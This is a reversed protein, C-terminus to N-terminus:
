AFLVQHPVASLSPLHDAYLDATIAYHGHGLANQLLKVPVGEMVAATAFSHRLGHLTVQPLSEEQLIRRHAAYVRQQTTDCLWGSVSRPWARLLEAVQDPLQLRRLSHRTKLPVRSSGRRQGRITITGAVLDVDEWRAGLAEGRRLGCCCLMLVPAVDTSAAATMYRRLQELNLILAEPAEYLPKPVTEPEIIGPPCLGVKSATRLAKSLMVRDLQAARPHSAAVLQIWPLIDLANLAVLEISCLEDPVAAVARHYCAKTSPALTSGDVYLSLWKELWEGLRM